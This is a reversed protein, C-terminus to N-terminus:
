RVTTRQPQVTRLILVVNKVYHHVSPTSMYRYERTGAIGSGTSGTCRTRLVSCEFMYEPLTSTGTNWTSEPINSNEYRRTHPVSYPTCYYRVDGLPVVQPYQYLYQYL